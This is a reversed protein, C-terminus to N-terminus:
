IIKITSKLAPLRQSQGIKKDQAIELFSSLYIVGVM